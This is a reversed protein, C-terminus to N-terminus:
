GSLALKEAARSWLSKHPYNNAMYLRIRRTNVTIAAAVKFLRLRITTVQAQALDTHKLALRRITEVLVYALSSLLVRFQNTWWKHASTRDAFLGLQQEKIRNEMDGRACYLDDYIEQADELLSTVVFRPNTGFANVEAKGIIRRTQGWSKAGYDFDTFRRQKDGVNAYAEQAMDMTPKLLRELRTNRSIGVVYDVGVRECWKLMRHRCFGSDGRFVIEVDPWSMRLRDVLLKLVAWAHKAGDINSPRLYSVLLQDNAFVYLPLFCYHDYYGHFFKYEQNGHVRDDTADFDLVLQKPAQAYSAVFQNILVETCALASARTQSNEFRCLTPSSAGDEDRGMSTRMLVDKRLHDHDNLDEYGQAIAFVRQRLLDATSYRCRNPDRKDILQSAVQDILGLKEDVMKLLILGADSSLDGGDFGAQILKRGHRGLDLSTTTCNPM